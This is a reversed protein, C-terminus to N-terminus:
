DETRVECTFNEGFDDKRPWGSRAAITSGRWYKASRAGGLRMLGDLPFSPRRNLADEPLDIRPVENLRKLLERRMEIDDFPPRRRLHQFVVEAIGTVPCLVLLRRDEITGKGRMTLFWSTEQARSQMSMERSLPVM